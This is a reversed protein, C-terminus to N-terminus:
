LAAREAKTLNYKPKPSTKLIRVTEQRAEEAIEVPLSHVAKEVSSLIDEVPTVRPTVAYNLGKQLESHTGKDLTQTSLNIGTTNSTRSTPHQMRHLHSFKKLRRNKNM